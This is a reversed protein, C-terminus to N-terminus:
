AAVRNRKLLTVFEPECAEHEDPKIKRFRNAGFGRPVDSEVGELLLAPCDAAALRNYYVGTVARVRYVGGNKLPVAGWYPNPRDDVCLALDGAQWSM